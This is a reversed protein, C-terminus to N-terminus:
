HVIRLLMIGTAMVMICALTMAVLLLLYGEVPEDTSAEDAHSVYAM